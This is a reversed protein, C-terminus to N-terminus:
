VEVADTRFLAMSEQLARAQSGMEEAMSALLEAAAANQRTVLDVRLMTQNIELVGTTQGLSVEAVEQVLDATKRISPVLEDLLRGASNAVRVSSAAFESIERAASQSREALKRVEAAVVAFGRGQEGARAAEIAANLALLNTQQAIEEIISIKEAIAEMALVTERVAGGGEMAEGVGKLAMAEMQRNSDANKAIASSLDDLSAATQQMSAAQESTGRSLIHSTDTVQNAASAVADAGSRVQLITESLRLSMNRIAQLLQATEDKGKVEMMAILNGEKVHNAVGVARGLPRTISRIIFYVLLSSAALSVM